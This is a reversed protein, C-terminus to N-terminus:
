VAKTLAVYWWASNKAVCLWVNTAAANDDVIGLFADGVTAPTGFATDLEADTPPNSVDDNSMAPTIREWETGTWVYAGPDADNGSTQMWLSGAALDATEYATRETQTGVYLAPQHTKTTV